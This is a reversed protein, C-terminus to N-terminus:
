KKVEIKVFPGVSDFNNEYPRIWKLSLHYSDGLDDVVGIYSESIITADWIYAPDKKPNIIPYVQNGAEDIIIKKYNTISALYLGQGLWKLDLYSKSIQEGQTNVLIASPQSKYFYQGAISIKNRFGQIEILRPMSLEKEAKLDLCIWNGHSEGDKWVVAISESVNMVEDYQPQIIKQLDFNIIGWLGNEKVAIYEDFIFLGQCPGFKKQGDLDILYYQNEFDCAPALSNKYDGVRKYTEQYALTMEPMKFHWMKDKTGAVVRGQFVNGIYIIDSSFWFLDGGDNMLGWREGIAGVNNKKVKAYDGVFSMAFDFKHSETWFADEGNTMIFRYTLADRVVAKGNPTFDNGNDFIRRFAPKGDRGIYGVKVGIKATALYKYNVAKALGSSSIVLVLLCIAILYKKV